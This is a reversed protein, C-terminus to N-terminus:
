ENGEEQGGTRGEGGRMALTEQTVPRDIEKSNVRGM